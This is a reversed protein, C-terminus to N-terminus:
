RREDMPSLSWRDNGYLAISLTAFTLGTDRVAISSLGLSAAIPIMHLFLFLAVWRVYLGFVLLVGAIIEFVGNLHVITSASLGSLGTAWSPVIGLWMGTNLLQSSGFWLYVGALALRLVVPAYSSYSKMIM